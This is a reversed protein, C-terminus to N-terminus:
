AIEEKFSGLCDRVYERHKAGGEIEEDTYGRYRIRGKGVNVCEKKWERFVM